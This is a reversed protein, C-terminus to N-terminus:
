DEEIRAKTWGLPVLVGDRDFVTRSQGYGRKNWPRRLDNVTVCEVQSFRGIRLLFENKEPRIDKILENLEGAVTRSGQDDEYFRAYENAWAALYFNNCAKILEEAKFARIGKFNDTRPLDQHFSLVLRAEGDGGLLKGSIVEAAMHMGKPEMGLRMGQTSVNVLPGVLLVKKGDVRGDSVRLTRFPDDKEGGGHRGGDPYRYCLGGGRGEML